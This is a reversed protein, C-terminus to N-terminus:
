AQTPPTTETLEKEFGVAFGYLLRCLLVFHVGLNLLVALRLETFQQGILNELAFALLGDLTYLVIGTFYFLRSGVLHAIGLAKGLKAFSGFLNAVKFFSGTHSGFRSLLGLILFLGALALSFMYCYYHIQQGFLRPDIARAIVDLVMPTALCIAALPKYNLGYYLASTGLASLGSILFFANSGSRFRREIEARTKAM